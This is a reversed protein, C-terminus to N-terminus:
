KAAAAPAVQAAATSRDSEVLLARTSAVWPAFGYVLIVSTGGLAVIQQTNEDTLTSRLSNALARADGHEIPVLTQILVAAHERWAPLADPEVFV